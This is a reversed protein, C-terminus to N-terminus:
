WAEVLSVGARAPGLEGRRLVYLPVHWPCGLRIDLFQTGVGRSIACLTSGAQVIGSSKARPLGTSNHPAWSRWRGGGPSRLPIPLRVQGGHTHGALVIPVGLRALVPLHDPTHTLAITLPGAGPKSPNPALPSGERGADIAAGLWDEPWSCGVFRIAAGSLRSVTMEVRGAPDLWHVGSLARAQARFHTTDHNGFIGVIGGPANPRTVELMRALIRVAAPEDARETMLDGTIAIVDPRVRGLLRLFSDTWQFTRAAWRRIHLDSVHLITAGDLNGPVAPHVIQHVEVPVPTRFSALPPIM